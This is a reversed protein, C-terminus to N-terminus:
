GKKYEVSPDVGKASSTYRKAEVIYLIEGTRGATIPVSIEAMHGILDQVRAASSVDMKNIMFHVAFTILQMVIYGSVVAPGLSLIGLAPLTVLAFMGGLGFFAMFSAIMMPNFFSLLRELFDETDGYHPPHARFRSSAMQAGTTVLQVASEGEGSGHGA